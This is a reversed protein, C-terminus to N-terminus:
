REVRFVSAIHEESVDPMVFGLLVTRKMIVARLVEFGFYM